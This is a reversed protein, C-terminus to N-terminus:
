VESNRLHEQGVEGVVVDLHGARQQLGTSAEEEPGGVGVQPGADEQHSVFM